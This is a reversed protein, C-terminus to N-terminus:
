GPGGPGVAADCGLNLTSDSAELQQSRPVPAIRPDEHDPDAM